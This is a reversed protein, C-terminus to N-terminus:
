TDTRVTEIHSTEKTSLPAGTTTDEIETAMLSEVTATVEAMIHIAVAAVHLLIRTLVSTATAVERTATAMGMVAESAEQHLTLLVM